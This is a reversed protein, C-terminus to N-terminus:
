FKLDVLLFGNELVDVSGLVLPQLVSSLIVVKDNIIVAEPVSVVPALNPLVLIVMLLGSTDLPLLLNLLYTIM